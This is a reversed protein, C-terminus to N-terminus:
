IPAGHGRSSSPESRARRSVAGRRPLSAAVAGRYGIDIDRDSQPGRSGGAAAMLEESVYGPVNSHLDRVNTHQGYVQM